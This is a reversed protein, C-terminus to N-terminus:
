FAMGALPDTEAFLCGRFRTPSHYRRAVEVRAAASQKLEAMRSVLEGIARALDNVNGDEFAIGAGFRRALDELWTNRTYVFPLGLCAAEVAVRSPRDGYSRARYPLVVGDLGSLRDFYEVTGLPRDIYEVQSHRLLPESKEIFKGEADKFGKGWQLVFKTPASEGSNFVRLLADQLLDSGKEHRAFGFSGLKVGETSQGPSFEGPVAVVQPIIGFDLGCFAKFQGVARRSETVPAFIGRRCLGTMGTLVTRMFWTSRPFDYGGDPRYTGPTNVFDVVLRKFKRGGFRRATMRWALVQPSQVTPAFVVDFPESHELFIRLDRALRLNHRLVNLYRQAANSESRTQHWASYRLVPKMKLSDIIDREARQNGLICTEVGGAECGAALSRIYEYWHGRSASLLAEEAILLRLRRGSRRAAGDLGATISRDMLQAADGGNSSLKSEKM